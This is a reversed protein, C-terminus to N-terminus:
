LTLCSIGGEHLSNQRWSPLAEHGGLVTSVQTPNRTQCKCLRHIKILWDTPSICYDDSCKNCNHVGPNSIDRPKFKTLRVQKSTHM